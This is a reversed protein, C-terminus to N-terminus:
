RYRRWVAGNNLLKNGAFLNRKGVDDGRGVRDEVALEAKVRRDIVGSAGDADDGHRRRFIGDDGGVKGDLFRSGFKAKNVPEASREDDGSLHILDFRAKRCHGFIGFAHKAELDAAMVLVYAHFFQNQDAAAFGSLTVSM